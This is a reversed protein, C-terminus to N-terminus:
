GVVEHHGYRAAYHLPTFGNEDAMNVGAARTILSKVCDVYGGKCAHMLPTKMFKDTSNVLSHRKLLENLMGLQGCRAAIHLATRGKKAEAFELDAGRDILVTGIQVKGQVAALMLPTLGTDPDVINIGNRWNVDRGVLEKM